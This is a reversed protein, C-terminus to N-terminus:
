TFQSNNQFASQHGRFYQIIYPFREFNSQILSHLQAASLLGALHHLHLALAFFIASWLPSTEYLKRILISTNKSIKSWFDTELKQSLEIINSFSIQKKVFVNLVFVFALIVIFDLKSVIHIINKRCKQIVEMVKDVWIM